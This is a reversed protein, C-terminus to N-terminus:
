KFGSLPQGLLTNADLHDIRTRHRRQIAIGDECRDVLRASQQDDILRENWKAQPCLHRCPHDVGAEVIQVSGNAPQVPGERRRRVTRRQLLGHYRLNVADLLGNDIQELFLGESTSTASTVTGRRPQDISSPVKTSHSLRSPSRTLGPS